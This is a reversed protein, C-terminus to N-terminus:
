ESEVTSIIKSLEQSTNEDLPEPRHTALIRRAEELAWDRPGDKKLEWENYSRRDMFQPMYVDRMHKKTHKQGLFHGSPGVAHITDLALTEENVPIGEM